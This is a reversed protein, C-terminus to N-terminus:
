QMWHRIRGMIGSGLRGKVERHAPTQRAGWHALGVANIYRYADQEAINGSVLKSCGVRVPMALHEGAMEPLGALLAGGGTIVVGGPLTNTIKLEQMFTSIFEMIEEVRSYLVRHALEGPVTRADGGAVPKITITGAIPNLGYTTKIMEAEELTTHLVLALDSTIHGSGVSFVQMGSIVGQNIYAARTMSSGIDVLVVGLEREVGDLVAEAAALPGTVSQKVKLGAETFCRYMKEMKVGDAAVAVAEVKLERGRVHRPFDLLKGDVYYWVDIPQIVSYGAPLTQDFINKRLELLDRYKLVQRSELAIKKCGRQVLMGPIDACLYVFSIGIGVRLEADAVARKVSGVADDMSVISGKDFGVAPSFGVGALEQGAGALPNYVAVAIGSAGVDLGVVVERDAGAM